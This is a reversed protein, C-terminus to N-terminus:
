HEVSTILKKILQRNKVVSIWDVSNLFEVLDRPSVNRRFVIDIPLSFDTPRLEIVPRTRDFLNVQGTPKGDKMFVRIALTPYSLEDDARTPYEKMHKALYSCAFETGRQLDAIVSTVIAADALSRPQTKM